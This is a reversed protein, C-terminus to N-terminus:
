TNVEHDIIDTIISLATEKPEVGHPVRIMFKIRISDVEALAVKGAFASQKDLRIYLNGSKDVRDDIEDFLRERDLSNLSRVIAVFLESASRRKSSSFKLIKIPDNYYGTLSEYRKKIDTAVHPFLNLIAREVKAEDETAHAFVSLEVGRLPYAKSEREVSMCRLRLRTNWELPIFINVDPDAIIVGSDPGDLELCVYIAQLMKHVRNRGHSLRSLAHTKPYIDLLFGMTAPEFGAPRAL